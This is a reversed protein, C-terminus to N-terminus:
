GRSPAVARRCSRVVVRSCQPSRHDGLGSGLEAQEVQLREVGAEVLDRVAVSGYLQGVNSAQRIITVSADKFSKAEVEAESLHSLVESAKDRGLQILIIAAKRVGLAALNVTM